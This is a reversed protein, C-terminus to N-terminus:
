LTTAATSRPLSGPAWHYAWAGFERLAVEKDYSLSAGHPFSGMRQLSASAASDQGIFEVLAVFRSGVDLATVKDPAGYVIGEVYDLTSKDSLHSGTIVLYATKTAM